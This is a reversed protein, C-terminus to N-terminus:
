LVDKRYESPSVGVHQKFYKGFFSQNTFNLDSSIEQITLSSSRLMVKSALVVYNDIWEGATRGSVTKVVSSLHKPTIFLKDAYYAVSRAVKFEREVLSFFNFFIEENRSRKLPVYNNRIKYINLTEYLLAQLLNHIIKKGYFGNVNKIKKWLFAHFEKISEVESQTLSVVPSEKFNLVFPLLTHIDPMVEEGYSPTVGIFLGKFDSSIEYGHIIHDPLLTVLTNAVITYNNLNVQLKVEGKICVAFIPMELKIPNNSSAIDTIDDFIFIENDISDSKIVANIDTITDIKTARCSLM